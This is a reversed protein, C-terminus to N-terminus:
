HQVIVKRKCQWASNESYLHIIYIGDPIPSTKICVESDGNVLLRENMIMKGSTNYVVGKIYQAGILPLKIHLEENCPNPYFKTNIDDTVEEDLDTLELSRTSQDNNYFDSSGAPLKKTLEVNYISGTFPDDCNSNRGGISIKDMGPIFASFSLYAFARANASDSPTISGAGHKWNWLVEQQAFSDFGIDPCSVRLVASEEPKAKGYKRDANKVAELTIVVEKDAFSKGSPPSITMNAFSLGDKRLLYQFSGSPNLYIAMDNNDDGYMRMVTQIHSSARPKVKLAISGMENESPLKQNPLKKENKLDMTYCPSSPTVPRYSWLDGGKFSSASTLDLPPNDAQAGKKFMIGYLVANKVLGQLVVPFEPFSKVSVIEKPHKNSYNKLYLLLLQKSNGDIGGSVFGVAAYDDNVVSTGQVSSGLSGGIYTGLGHDKTSDYAYMLVAAYSNLQTLIKGRPDETVDALIYPYFSSGVKFAEYISFKPLNSPSLYSYSKPEMSYFTKATQEAKLGAMKGNKGMALSIGPNRGAVHRINSAAYFYFVDLPNESLRTNLVPKGINICGYDDSLPDTGNDLFPVGPKLYRWNIGDNSIALETRQKHQVEADGDTGFMTVLGWWIDKDFGPLRVPQMSYPEWQSTSMDLAINFDVNKSTLQSGIETITERRYRKRPDPSFPVSEGPKLASRKANLRSVFYYKGDQKLYNMHTDGNIFKFTYKKQSSIRDRKMSSFGQLVGQSDFTKDMEYGAIIKNGSERQPLYILKIPKQTVENDDYIGFSEIDVAVINTSKYGSKYESSIKADATTGGPNYWYLGANPRTWTEVNGTNNTYVMVGMKSPPTSSYVVWSSIYISLNNDNDMIVNPMGNELYSEWPYVTPNPKILNKGKNYKYLPKIYVDDTNYLFLAPNVASYKCDQSYAYISYLLLYLALLAIRKMM